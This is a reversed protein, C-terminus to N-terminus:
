TSRSPRVIATDTPHRWILLGEHGHGARLLQEALHEAKVPEAGALVLHDFMDKGPTRHQRHHRGAGALRQAILQRCQDRVFWADDDRRQGGQHIILHDRELPKANRRHPNMGAPLPM